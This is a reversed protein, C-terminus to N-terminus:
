APSLDTVPMFLTIVVKIRRRVMGGFSLTMSSAASKRLRQYGERAVNQLHTLRNTQIMM